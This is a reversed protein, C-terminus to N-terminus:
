LAPCPMTLKKPKYFPCEQGLVRARVRVQELISCLVVPCGRKNHRFHRVIAKTSVNGLMFAPM